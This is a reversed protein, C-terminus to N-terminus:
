VLKRLVEFDAKTTIKFNLFSGEVINIKKAIRKILVSEDTGYFNDEYAKKMAKQLDSYKFIQPTQVYYVNKRDIYEKVSSNGKILTDGAKICVLANGKRKATNIANALVNKPLLPRAADHIIILDNKGAAIAQLGNYVSDQRKKGGKVITKIKTLRYKKKLRVILGFYIPDASIIIEDVSKNKQFTELSYVILEKGRLKHYQKPTVFGSRLGKGGAPIIVFTKM